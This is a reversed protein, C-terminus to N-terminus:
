CWVINQNPWVNLQNICIHYFNISKHHFTWKISMNRLHFYWNLINNYLVKKKVSGSNRVIQLIFISVVPLKHLPLFSGLKKQIYLVFSICIFLTTNGCNDDQQHSLLHSQKYLQCTIFLCDKVTLTHILLYITSWNQM